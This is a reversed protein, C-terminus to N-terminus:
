LNKIGSTTANVPIENWLLKFGRGESNDNSHFTIRVKNSSSQFSSDIRNRGCWRGITTANEKMQKNKNNVQRQQDQIYDDNDSLNELLIYDNQCNPSNEIDFVGNFTFNFLEDPAVRLVKTCHVNKPYKQFLVLNDPRYNFWADIDRHAIMSHFNYEMHALCFDSINSSRVIKMDFGYFTTENNIKQNNTTVKTSDKVIFTELGKALQQFGATFQIYLSGDSNSLIRSKRTQQNFYCYRELVPSEISDSPKLELFDLDPYKDLDCLSLSDNSLPTLKRDSSDIAPANAPKRFNVKDFWIQFDVGILELKWWCISPEYSSNHHNAHSRIRVTEGQTLQLNLCESYHYYARFGRYVQGTSERVLNKTRLRMELGSSPVPFWNFSGGILKTINGCSILSPSMLESLSLMYLGCNQDIKAMSSSSLGDQPSSKEQMILPEMFIQAGDVLSPIEQIQVAVYTTLFTGPSDHSPRYRAHVLNLYRGPVLDWYGSGSIQWHCQIYSDNQNMLQGFNGSEILNGNATIKYTLSLKGGCKYKKEDNLRAVALFGEGPLLNSARYNLLLAHSETNINVEQNSALPYSGVLRFYEGPTISQVQTSMNWTDQIIPDVVGTSKAPAPQLNCPIEHILKRFRNFYSPSSTTQGSFIPKLENVFTSSAENDALYALSDKCSQGAESNGWDSAKSRMIKLFRLSITQSPPGVLLIWQNRDGYFGSPWGPSNLKVFSDQDTLTIERIPLNQTLHSSGFLFWGKSAGNVDDTHFELVVGPALTDFPKNGPPRAACFRALTSGPTFSVGAIPADDDNTTVGGGGDSVATQVGNTLSNFRLQRIQVYDGVTCDANSPRSDLEFSRWYLILNQKLSSAFLYYSCDINTSYTQSNGEKLPEYHGMIYHGGCKSLSVRGKFRRPRRELYAAMQTTSVPTQDTDQDIASTLGSTASKSAPIFIYRILMYRGTSQVQSPAMPLCFRSLQPALVSSGDHVILYARKSRSYAPEFCYDHSPAGEPTAFDLFDASLRINRNANTFVLWHCEIPKSPESPWNPSQLAKEHYGGTGNSSQENISELEITRSCGFSVQSSNSSSSLLDQQKMAENFGVVDQFEKSTDNNNQSNNGLVIYLPDTKLIARARLLFNGNLIQNNYVISAVNSSTQIVRILNAQVVPDYSRNIVAFENGPEGLSNLKFILSGCFQALNIAMLPNLGDFISVSDQCSSSNLSGLELSILEFQIVSNMPDSSQITWQITQNTLKAPFHPSSILALYDEEKPSKPNLHISGGYNIKYDVLFGSRLQGPKVPSGASGMSRFRILVEGKLHLRISNSGMYGCYKNILNSQDFDEQNIYSDPNMSYYDRNRLLVRNIKALGGLRSSLSRSSSTMSSNNNNNNNVVKATRLKIGKLKRLPSLTFIEIHDVEDCSSGQNRVVSLSSDSSGVPDSRSGEPLSLDRLKLETHSGPSGLLHYFCDLDRPYSLPYNPSGFSGEDLQFEGGCLNEFPHIRFKAAAKGSVLVYLSQGQSAYNLTRHSLDSQRCLKVKPQLLKDFEKLNFRSQRLSIHTGVGEYVRLCDSDRDAPDPAQKFDILQFYVRQAMAGTGPKQSGPEQNKNNDPEFKWICVNASPDMGTPGWNPFEPYNPTSFARVSRVIVESGCLEAYSLKWHAGSSQLARFDVYVSLRPMVFTYPPQVPQNNEDLQQNDMMGCLYEDVYPKHNSISLYNKSYACTASPLLKNSTSPPPTVSVNNTVYSEFPIYLEDVRFVFRNTRFYSNIYDRCVLYESGPTSPSPFGGAAQNTYGITQHFENYNNLTKSSGDFSKGLLRQCKEINKSPNVILTFEQGSYRSGSSFFRVLTMSRTSHLSKAPRTSDCNKYLIPSNQNDGDYITLSSEQCLDAQPSLSQQRMDSSLFMDLRDELDESKILWLCEYARSANKSTDGGYFALPPLPSEHYKITEGNSDRPVVKDYGCGLTRWELRFGVDQVNRDSEFSVLAQNTDLVITRETLNYDSLRGCMSKVLKVKSNTKNNPKNYRNNRNLNHSKISSLIIETSNTGSNTSNFGIRNTPELAWILLEDDTCDKKLTYHKFSSNTVTLPHWVSTSELALHTIALQIKNGMPARLFWACSLNAAYVGPFGPSEISGSFASLENHHCITKYTIRFGPSQDLAQSQYVISMKNGTTTFSRENPELSQLQCWKGLSKTAPGDWTSSDFLELYAADTDSANCKTIPRSGISAGLNLDVLTVEIRSGAGVEIKWECRASHTYPQPYYPSDIQGSASRLHGGCGTTAGDYHIEFGRRNLQTDTVFRMYLLNSESILVRQNLERGCFRGVLPSDPLPGSRIELYDFECRHHYELDFATFNLRIQQGLAAQITWIIDLNNPYSYPFRPSRIIGSDHVLRGGSSVNQKNSTLNYNVVLKFKGDDFLPKLKPWAVSSSQKRSSNSMSTAVTENNQQQKHETQNRLRIYIVNSMSLWRTSNSPVLDTPCLIRSRNLAPEYLEITETFVQDCKWQNKSDVEQQDDDVDVSKNNSNYQTEKAWAKWEKLRNQIVDDPAKFSFMVVGDPPAKLIWACKSHFGSHHMSDYRTATLPFRTLERVRLGSTLSFNGVAPSTLIGGCSPEAQYRIALKIPQENPVTASSSAASTLTFRRRVFLTVHNWISDFGTAQGKCLDFEKVNDHDQAPRTSRSQQERKNTEDEHHQDLLRDFIDVMAENQSRDLKARGVSSLNSKNEPTPQISPYRLNSEINLLAKAGNEIPGDTFFAQLPCSGDPLLLGDTAGANGALALKPPEVRMSLSYNVPLVIHYLCWSIDPALYMDVQAELQTLTTTCVVSYRLRFGAPPIPQQSLREYSRAEYVLMLSHGSSVLHDNAPKGSLLIKAKNLGGKYQDDSSQDYNDGMCFSSLKQPGALISGPDTGNSTKKSPGSKNIDDANNTDYISLETRSCMIRRRFPSLDENDIPSPMEVKDISIREFRQQNAPRIEYECRVLRLHSNGPSRFDRGFIRQSLSSLPRWMDSSPNENTSSQAVSTPSDPEYDSSTLSGKRATYLGGCGPSDLESVYSLLFGRKQHNSNRSGLSTMAVPWGSDPDSDLIIEIASSSSVIQPKMILDSSATLNNGCYQFLVPREAGFAGDLITLSDACTKDLSERIALLSLEVVQIRIRKGQPVRVFWRCETGPQYFEPFKPSSISGSDAILLEGGCSVDSLKWQMNFGLRPQGSQSRTAEYSYKLEARGSEVLFSLKRKSDILEPSRGLHSLRSASEPCIIALLRRIPVSSPSTRDESVTMNAQSSSPNRLIMELDQQQPNIQHRPIIEYLELSEHCDNLLNKSGLSSLSSLGSTHNAIYFDVGKKLYVLNRINTLELTLSHNHATSPLSISWKCQYRLSSDLQLPLVKASDKLEDYSDHPPFSLQGTTTHYNGSCDTLQVGCDPGSWGLPCICEPSGFYGVLCAAGNYCPNPDCPNRASSTQRPSTTAAPPLSDNQNRTNEVVNPTLTNAPQISMTPNLQCGTPGIGNGTFPFQCECISAREFGKIPICKAMPHCGGNPETLCISSLTCTQGDGSFGPPCKGCRRSGPTNICEVIPDKSCGGNDGNLCEDIDICTRGNGSYGPPCFGCMFSGPLNTCSVLPHTSCPYTWGHNTALQSNGNSSSVNTLCEDIDVVCAPDMGNTTWGQDCICEYHPQNAVTRVLDLCKGHGCLAKSSSMSCDNHEETCHIGHYQPPCDCRYGGELNVCKAENQCGLDTGRFKSCENVDQQCTPGEWEDRCLCKFNDYLDLCTAGNRCIPEGTDREVCENRKLKSIIETQTVSMRDLQKNKKTMKQKLKRTIDRLDDMETDLDSMQKELSQLKKAAAFIVRLGSELGNQADTSAGQTNGDMNAFLQKATEGRTTRELAKTVELLKDLKLGNISVTGLSGSTRFEINKDQSAEIVLHGNRSRIRPRNPFPDKFEPDKFQLQQEEKINRRGRTKLQSHDYTQGFTLCIVLGLLIALTLYISM